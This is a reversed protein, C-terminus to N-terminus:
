ALGEAARLAKVGEPGCSLKKALPSKVEVVRWFPSVQDPKKGASLEELACEAIIRVFISTTMPCAADAKYQKALSERVEVLTKSKGKPIKKILADVEEPTSILLRSGAPYGWMAKTMTEIEPKRGNHYKQQWTKAM